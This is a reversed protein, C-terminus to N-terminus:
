EEEDSLEIAPNENQQRTSIFRDVKDKVQQASLRNPRNREAQSRGPYLTDWLSRQQTDHRGGGLARNGFGKLCKNWIPQYREILYDEALTAFIRRVLLFRCGFDELKLSGSVSSISAAHDNLRGRVDRGPTLSKSVGLYVPEEPLMGKYLYRKGVYFLGYIGTGSFAIEPPLRYLPQEMFTMAVQKAIVDSSL